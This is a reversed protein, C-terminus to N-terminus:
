AYAKAYRKSFDGFADSLFLSDDRSAALQWAMVTYEPDMRCLYKYLADVNGKNMEGSVNVATAYTLSPETPLPAKMPNAIIEEIPIVKHWVDLFGWFETSAGQGVAGSMSARKLGHTMTEDLYYEMATFWSRPTAFCERADSPDFTHVLEKKFNMLAIFAAPYGRSQAHACFAKLDFVLEYWTLRNALPSPLKFGYGKDDAGNMAAVIVVNPKLINEGLRYSLMLQYCVSLVEPKAHNMEDLFLLIPCDDPFDDNGIFPLTAPPCWSTFATGDKVRRRIDPVGHLDVSEYLSLRLDILHAGIEEGVQYIAESKGIGSRGKVIIPKRHRVAIHKVAEKLMPINIQDM